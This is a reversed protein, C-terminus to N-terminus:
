HGNIKILTYKTVEMVRKGTNKQTEESALESLLNIPCNFIICINFTSVDPELSRYIKHLKFYM